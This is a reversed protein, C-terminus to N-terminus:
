KKDKSEKEFPMGLLELLRFAQKPSDSKVVITIEMGRPTVKTIDVEPFVSHDVIGLTYNGFKDFASNKIGRFDRLRPLVVSCLKDLFSYMKDGRLTVKLGVPSGKRLSFSAVSVRAKRVSPLQGTILAMDNKIKEMAEKNKITDGVGSNVVIKEVRPAQMINKIAFEEMLKAVVEKQYKERLRSKSM